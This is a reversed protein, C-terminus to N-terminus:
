LISTIAVLDLSYAKLSPVLVCLLYIDLCSPCDFSAYEHDVGAPLRGLYSLPDFVNDGCQSKALSHRSSDSPAGISVIKYMSTSTKQGNILIHIRIAAFSYAVLTFSATLANNVQDSVLRAM